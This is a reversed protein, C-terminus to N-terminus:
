PPLVTESSNLPPPFGKDSSELPYEIVGVKGNLELNNLGFMTVSMGITFYKWENKTAYKM